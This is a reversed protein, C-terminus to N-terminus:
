SDPHEFRRGAEITWSRVVDVYSLSFFDVAQWVAEEQAEKKAKFDDDTDCAQIGAIWADFWETEFNQM